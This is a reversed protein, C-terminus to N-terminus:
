KVPLDKKLCDVSDPRRAMRTEDGEEKRGRRGGKCKRLSKVESDKSNGSLGDNLYRGGLLRQGNKEALSTVRGRIGETNREVWQAYGGARQVPKGWVSGPNSISM